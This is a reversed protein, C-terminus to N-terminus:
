ECYPERVVVGAQSTNFWSAPRDPGHDRLHVWLEVVGEQVRELASGGDYDPVAASRFLAGDVALYTEGDGAYALLDMEDGPALQVTERGGREVSFAEFSVARRARVRGPQLVALLAESYDNADVRRQAEVTRVRRSAPTPASFAPAAGTTTWQAHCGADIAGGPLYTVPIPDVQAAAAAPILLALLTLRM